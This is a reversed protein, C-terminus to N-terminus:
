LSDNGSRLGGERSLNSLADNKEKTLEFEYHMIFHYFDPM